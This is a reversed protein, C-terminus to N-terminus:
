LESGGTEGERGPPHNAFVTAHRRTRHSGSGPWSAALSAQIKPLDSSTAAYTAKCDQYLQKQTKNRRLCLDTLGSMKCLQWFGQGSKGARSLVGLCIGGFMHKVVKVCLQQGMQRDNCQHVSVVRV